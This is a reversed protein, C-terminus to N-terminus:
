NMLVLVQHKIGQNKMNKVRIGPNQINKLKKMDKKNTMSKMNILNKLKIMDTLAIPKSIVKREVNSAPGRIRPDVKVKEKMDTTNIMNIKRTKHHINKKNVKQKRKERLLLKGRRRKSISKNKKKLLSKKVGRNPNKSWQTMMKMMLYRQDTEGNINIKRATSRSESQTMMKTGERWIKKRNGNKTNKGNGNKMM